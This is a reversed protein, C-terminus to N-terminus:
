SAGKLLEFLEADEAVRQRLAAKGAILRSRVTNAPVETAAATEEVTYGLACHLALAEAQVVPLEDLLQRFAECRRAALAQGMPSLEHSPHDDTSTHTILQRLQLRRRANMATLAAVRWVFHLVSCEHRFGPLAEIAAFMADQAVDEVDPHRTGLIRRVVRLVSSGCGLVLSEIAKVDGRAAARAVGALPDSAQTVPEPNTSRPTRRM